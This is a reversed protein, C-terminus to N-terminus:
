GLATSPRAGSGPGQPSRVGSAFEEISVAREPFGARLRRDGTVLPVGHRQSLVAFQADYASLGRDVALGLVESGRPEEEALALYATAVRWADFAQVRTIAGARTSVALVNLFESRWLPPLLWDQDKARVRQAAATRDGEILLYAVLNTDAVIM